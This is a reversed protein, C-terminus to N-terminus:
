PQQIQLVFYIRHVLNKANNFENFAMWFDDPELYIELIICEVKVRIDIFKGRGPHPPRSYWRCDPAKVVIVTDGILILSPLVAKWTARNRLFQSKRPM